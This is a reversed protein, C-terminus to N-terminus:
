DTQTTCKANSIKLIIKAKQEIHSKWRVKKYVFQKTQQNTSKCLPISNHLSDYSSCLRLSPSYISNIVSLTDLLVNLILMYMYKSMFADSQVFVNSDSTTFTLMWECHGTFVNCKCYVSLYVVCKCLHSIVEILWSYNASNTNSNQVTYRIFLILMNSSVRAKLNWGQNGYGYLEWCFSYILQM